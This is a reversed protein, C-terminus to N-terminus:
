FSNISTRTLILRESMVAPKVSEVGAQFKMEEYGVFSPCDPHVPKESEFPKFLHFNLESVKM